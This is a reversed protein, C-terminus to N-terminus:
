KKYEKLRRYFTARSIGLEELAEGVKLEGRESREKLMGLYIDDVPIRKRGKFRGEAVAIDMGTKRNKMQLKKNSLVLDSLVKYTTRKEEASLTKGDLIINKGLAIESLFERAYKEAGLTKEDSNWIVDGEYMSDYRVVYMPDGFYKYDTRILWELRNLYKMDVKALLDGLDERHPGPTREEIFCPVRDKRIYKEKRKDLDLGPIGQFISTPLLDMVDYYPTFIYEYSEDEYVIYEIKTLKHEIGLNNKVMILGVTSNQKM